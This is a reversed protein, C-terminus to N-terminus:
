LDNNVEYRVGMTEKPTYGLLKLKEAALRESQVRKLELLESKSIFDPINQLKSKKGQLKLAEEDLKSINLGAENDDVNNSKASKNRRQELERSSINFLTFYASNEGNIWTM